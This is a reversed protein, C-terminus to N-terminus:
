MEEPCEMGLLGCEKCLVKQVMDALFLRARKKKEDAQLHTFGGALEATHANNWRLAPAHCDSREAAKTHISWGPLVNEFFRFGERSKSAATCYAFGNCPIQICVPHPIM